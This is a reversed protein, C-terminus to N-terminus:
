NALPKGLKERKKAVFSLHHDVHQVRSLLLEGLTVTGRESHNGTRSFTSDALKRLVKAFQRRNLTFLAIASEADQDQYFLSAAFKSEDFGLITPNDEAIILKMRSSGILDCDLLHIIIQQISWTGVGADSAPIWLLEEKSLGAIARQLKGGGAEYNDIVKKDM